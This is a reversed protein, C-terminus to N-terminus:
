ATAQEPNPSFKTSAVKQILVRGPDEQGRPFAKKVAERAADNLPQMHWDPSELYSVEMGAEVFQKRGGPELPMYGATTLRYRPTESAM